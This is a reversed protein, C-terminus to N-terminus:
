HGIHGGAVHYTDTLAAGDPVIASRLVLNPKVGQYAMVGANHWHLGFYYAGIYQVMGQLVGLERVGASHKLRM